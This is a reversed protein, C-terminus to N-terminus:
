PGDFSGDSVLSLMGWGPTSGPSLICPSAGRGGDIVVGRPLLLDVSSVSFSCKKGAM